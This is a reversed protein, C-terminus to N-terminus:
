LSAAQGFIYRWDMEVFFILPNSYVCVMRDIEDLIAETHKVFMPVQGDSADDYEVVDIITCDELSTPNPAM